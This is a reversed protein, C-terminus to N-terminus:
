NWWSCIAVKIVRVAERYEDTRGDCISLMQMSNHSGVTFGTVDHM